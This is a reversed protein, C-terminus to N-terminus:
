NRSEHGTANKMIFDRLALAAPEKLGPIRIDAGQTGATYILVTSLGYKRELIGAHVSCHQIRNFPCAAIRLVLWGSRYHIDKERLAYAKQLFSRRMLWYGTVCFFALGPLVIVWWVQNGKAFFFLFIFAIILLFLTTLLWRWQLVKWYVPDIPTYTLESTAPLTGPEVPGNSFFDM